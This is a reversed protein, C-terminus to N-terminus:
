RKILPLFVQLTKTSVITQQHDISGDSNEDIQVTVSDANWNPQLLHTDGARLAPMTLTFDATSSNSVQFFHAQYAAQEVSATLSLAGSANVKFRAETDGSFNLSTLDVQYSNGTDHTIFTLSRTVAGSAKLTIVEAGPSFLLVDNEGQKAQGQLAVIARTDFISAEVEGNQNHKLTVTLPVGADILYNDPYEGNDPLGGLPLVLDYDAGVISVQTGSGVFLERFDESQVGAASVTPVRYWNKEPRLANLLLPAASLLTNYRGLRKYCVMGNSQNGWVPESNYQWTGAAGNITVVDVEGQHHNPNYVTFTTVGSSETYSIPLMAHEICNNGDGANVGRMVFTYPEELRGDISQKVLALTETLEMHQANNYHGKQHYGLQYGNYRVIYDAVPSPLMYGNNTLPQPIEFLNNATVGDPLSILNHFRLAATTVMGYCQGGKGFNDYDKQGYYWKAGPDKFVIGGVNWEVQDAGFIDRFNDWTTHYSLNDFGWGHPNPKFGSDHVVPTPTIPTPTVPTHTPTPTPTLPTATYTPTPAVRQFNVVADPPITVAQEYPIFQYSIWVRFDGGHFGQKTYNGQADTIVEYSSGGGGIYVAIGQLPNGNEDTVKGSIRLLPDYTPTPSFQPLVSNHRYSMDQISRAQAVGALLILGMLVIAMLWFAFHKNRRQYSM